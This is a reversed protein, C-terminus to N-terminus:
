ADVYHLRACFDLQSNDTGITHSGLTYLWLCGEKMYEHTGTDTEQAQWQSRLDHLDIFEDILICNPLNSEPANGVLFHWDRLIKFRTTNDRNTLSNQYVKNWIEGYGPTTGQPDKDYVIAIRVMDWPEESSSLLRLQGKLQLKKMIVARGDRDQPGDGSPIVNLQIQQAVTGCNLSSANGGAITPLDCFKLEPEVLKYKKIKTKPSKKRRKAQSPTEQTLVYDRKPM